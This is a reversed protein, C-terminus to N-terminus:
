FRWWRVIFFFGVRNRLVICLAFCIQQIMTLLFAQNKGWVTSIRWGAIHGLFRRQRACEVSTCAEFRIRSFNNWAIHHLSWKVVNRTTTTLHLLTNVSHHKWHCNSSSFICHLKAWENVHKQHEDHTSYMESKKGLSFFNLKYRKAIHKYFQCIANSNNYEDSYTEM